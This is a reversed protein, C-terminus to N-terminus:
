IKIQSIHLVSFPVANEAFHETYESMSLKELRDAIQEMPACGNRRPWILMVSSVAATFTERDGVKKTRDQLVPISAGAGKDNVLRHRKHPRLAAQVGLASLDRDQEGIHHAERGKRLPRSLFSGVDQDPTERLQNPSPTRSCPPTTCPKVPSPMMATKPAGTAKSSWRQPCTPRRQRDQFTELLGSRFELGFVAYSWLHASAEVGSRRDSAGGARM